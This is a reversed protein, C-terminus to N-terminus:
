NFRSCHASHLHLPDVELIGEAVADVEDMMDYIDAKADGGNVWVLNPQTRYREGLYRGYERLVQPGNDRMVSCWGENECVWGLYAPL